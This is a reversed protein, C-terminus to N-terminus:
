SHLFALFAVIQYCAACTEKCPVAERLKQFGCVVIHLRSVQQLPGQPSVHMASGQMAPTTSPEAPAAEASVDHSSSAGGVHTAQQKARTAATAVPLTAEAASTAMAQCPATQVSTPAATSATAGAASGGVSAASSSAASQAQAAPQLSVDADREPQWHWRSLPPAKSALRLMQVDTAPSESAQSGSALSPAAEERVSAATTAAVVGPAPSPPASKLKPRAAPAAAWVTWDKAEVWFGYPVKGGNRVLHGEHLRGKMLTANHENMLHWKPWRTTAQPDCNATKCANRDAVAETTDNSLAGGIAQWGKVEYHRSGPEQSLSKELRNRLDVDQYSSPAAEAADYGGLRVFHAAFCGIRGTCAGPHPHRPLLYNCLHPPTSFVPLVREIFVPSLVNDADVNVLFPSQAPGRVTHPAAESVHMGFVHATNKHWSAHWHEIRPPAAQGREMDELCPGCAMKREQLALAANGGSAIRLLGDKIAPECFRVLYCLGLADQGTTFLAMRVFRRFPWVALINCMIAAPANKWRQHLTSCLVITGPASTAAHAGFTEAIRRASEDLWMRMQGVSPEELRTTAADEPM